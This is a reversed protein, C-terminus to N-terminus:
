MVGMCPPPRALVRWEEVDLYLPEGHDLDRQVDAMESAALLLEVRDGDTGQDTGLQSGPAQRHDAHPPRQPRGPPPRVSTSRRRSFGTVRALAMTIKSLM